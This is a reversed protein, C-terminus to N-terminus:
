NGVRLNTPASPPTKDVVIGAGSAITNSTNGSGDILSGVPLAFTAAGDAVSSNVVLLGSFQTGPVTGSLVITSFSGDSELLTLPGPIQVLSSSATLTVTVNGAAVPSPDSLTIGATLSVSGSYETAGEDWAVGARPLNDAYSPLAHFAALNNNISTTRGSPMGTSTGTDVAPSNLAVHYDNGTPSIFQPDACRVNDNASGDRDVDAAPALQSCGFSGGNFSVLTGTSKSYVLNNQFTGGPGFDVMKIAGSDYMINNRFVNGTCVGNYAGGIAGGGNNVFTNNYVVNRSASQGAGAINFVLAAGNGTGVQGHGCQVFLNNFFVNSDTSIGNADLKVCEGPINRFINDRVVWNNSNNEFIIGKPGARNPNNSQLNEILNSSLVSGTYDGNGTGGGNDGLIMGSPTGVVAPGVVSDDGLHHIWNGTITHITAGSAAAQIHIGESGTYAIENNAVKVNKAGFIGIGYDSGNDTRDADYLIRNSEVTINSAGAQVTVGHRRHCRITFGRITVYSSASSDGVVFGLGNNNFFVYPKLNASGGPAQAGTGWRVYIPGAAGSVSGSSYSYFQGTLAGISTVRYTPTGDPRQAGLALDMPIAPQARWVDQCVGPVGPCDGGSSCNSCQTWGLTPGSGGAGTGEIFVTEQGTQGYLYQQIIIPSNVSGNKGNIRFQDGGYRGDFNSAEGDHATHIGRVNLIDGPNQLLAIGEDLTKKPGSAGCAISAGTGSSPCNGDVYYTAAQTAPIEVLVAALVALIARQSLM